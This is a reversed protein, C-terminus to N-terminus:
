NSKRKDSKRKDSKRKSKRFKRTKRPKRPEGGPMKFNGPANYVYKAQNKNWTVSSPPANPNQSYINFFDDTIKSTQSKLRILRQMDIVGFEMIPFQSSTKFNSTDGVNDEFDLTIDSPNVNKGNPLSKIFDEIPKNTKVVAGGLEKLEKPTFFGDEAYIFGTTYGEGRVCVNDKIALMRFYNNSDIAGVKVTGGVKRTIMNCAHGGRNTEIEITSIAIDDSKANTSTQWNDHVIEGRGAMSSKLSNWDNFGTDTTMNNFSPTSHEYGRFQKQSYNPQDKSKQVIIKAQVSETHYMRMNDLIDPHGFSSTSALDANVQCSGGINSVSSIFQKCAYIENEPHLSEFKKVINKEYLADVTFGATASISQILSSAVAIGVIAMILFGSGGKKWTKNLQFDSKKGILEAMAGRKNKFSKYAINNQLKEDLTEYLNLWHNNEILTFLSSLIIIYNSIESDNGKEIVLDFNQFLHYVSELFMQEQKEFVQKRKEEFEEQSYEKFSM